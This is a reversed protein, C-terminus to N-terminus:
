FKNNKKKKILEKKKKSKDHIDGVKRNCRNKLYELIKDKLVIYKKLLIIIKKIM